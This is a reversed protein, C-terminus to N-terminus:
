PGASPASLAAWWGALDEPWPCEFRLAEGTRPHAIGLVAAHLAMRPPDISSPEGHQKDGLVPHGLHRAHLRIQHTRGTELTCRSLTVGPRREVVALHTVARRGAIPLEVTRAEEAMEGRLAALYVREVDHVRFREALARNALETRAFVLLGSTDLDLRHVM